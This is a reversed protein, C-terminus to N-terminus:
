TIADADPEYIAWFSEAMYRHLNGEGDRVVWDGPGVSLVTACHYGRRPTQLCLRGAIEPLPFPSDVESGKGREWAEVLWSPWEGTDIPESCNNVQFAEVKTIKKRFKM